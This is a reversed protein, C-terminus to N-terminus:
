INESNSNLMVSYGWFEELWGKRTDKTAFMKVSNFSFRVECNNTKAFEIAEDIVSDVCAGANTDFVIKKIKFNKM